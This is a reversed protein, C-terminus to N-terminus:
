IEFGFAKRGMADIYELGCHGNLTREDLTDGDEEYDPARRGQLIAALQRHVYTKNTSTTPCAAIYAVAANQTGDHRTDVAHCVQIRYAFNEADGSRIPDDSVDAHWWVTDGPNIPPMAVMCDELRLHPHSSRSLRQSDAKVTGPFWASTRNITWKTADMVQDPDAPACFFPRLVVYAIAWSANPYILITGESLSTPTFATWGQFTRLVSSHAIGAFLDQKADRRVGLNYLDLQEPRGSFVEHYVHRYTPDVWRALSGADIHPGLGLFEQGPARDRLGDLYILPESSTEGTSDHWLENLRRQLDLHRPHTRLRNQVPSDYLMLMSPSEKPWAPIRGENNGLYTKLDKYLDIAEAEAITARCVFAGTTRAIDKQQGTFGDALIQDTGFIPIIDSGKSAIDQTVEALKSCVKLWSQWLAEVGYEDIIASKANVYDPDNASDDASTYEQWAPWPHAM